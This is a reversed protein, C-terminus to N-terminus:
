THEWRSIGLAGYGNLTNGITLAGNFWHLRHAFSKRCHQFGQVYFTSFKQFQQFCMNCVSNFIWNKKFIQVNHTHETLNIKTCAKELYNLFIFVTNSDHPITFISKCSNHVLQACHIACINQAQFFATKGIVEGKWRSLNQGREKDNNKIRENDNNKKNLLIIVFRSYWKM